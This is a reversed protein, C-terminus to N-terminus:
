LLNTKQKYATVIEELIEKDMNEEIYVLSTERIMNMNEIPIAVLSKNKIEDLCASRPLISIGLNKKVLDKITAVNDIELYVNFDDISMDIRALHKLFLETTGSEFTRLIIKSNTLDDISLKFKSALKNSPSVVAVLYDTGLLISSYKKNVIKGEIVAMDVQYNNLKDYLNKITDSIIKIHIGKQKESYEALIEPTINSESTHTIGVTLSKIYRKSNIKRELDSYVSQIRKSYKLMTYGANTLQLDHGVRAFLKVKYEEELQKIQQSVAPQTLNLLKAAETYNKTESVTIFTLLKSDM